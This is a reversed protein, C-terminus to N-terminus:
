IQSKWDEYDRQSEFAIFGSEVEVIEAAWPALKQVDEKTQVGDHEDNLSGLSFFQKRMTKKRETNGPADDPLAPPGSRAIGTVRLPPASRLLGSAAKVPM